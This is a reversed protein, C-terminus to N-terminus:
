WDYRAVSIAYLWLTAAAPDSVPVLIRICVRVTITHHVSRHLRGEPLACILASKTIIFIHRKNQNRYIYNMCYEERLTYYILPVNETRIRQIGLSKAYRRRFHWTCSLWTSIWIMAYVQMINIMIHITYVVRPWLDLIWYVAIFCHYCHSIFHNYWHGNSTYCQDRIFYNVWRTNVLYEYDVLVM